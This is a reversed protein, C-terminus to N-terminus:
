KSQELFATLKDRLWEADTISMLIDYPKEEYKETHFTMSLICIKSGIMVQMGSKGSTYLQRYTGDAMKAKLEM